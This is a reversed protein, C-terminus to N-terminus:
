MTIESATPIGSTVVTPPKGFYLPKPPPGSPAFPIACIPDIRVIKPMELLMVSPAATRGLYRITMPMPNVTMSRPYERPDNKM